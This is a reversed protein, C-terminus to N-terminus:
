EKEGALGSVGEDIKTIEPRRRNQLSRGLTERLDIDKNRVCKKVNRNNHVHDM